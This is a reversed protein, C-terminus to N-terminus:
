GSTGQPTWSVIRRGRVVNWTAVAAAAYVMCVYTAISLPKPMRVGRRMLWWGVLAAGYFATQAAMTLVYFRHVPILLLNSLFILVLPIFLLRRLLKHTFLQVAYFGFRFPNLLERRYLVGSLGRTMVRVKRAFERKQTPAVAEFAVADPEFLLRFGQAIVSTSVAFDDTVGAPVGQFLSRRIAYISGTASITNGAQSEWLKLQRDFDWYASEGANDTARDKKTYRQNGAVGGIQDDAFHRVLKRIADPRYMSSADSMVLIDGSAEAIAANLAAAKGQRPLDIVRVNPGALARALEVTRDSSGDSAVIAELQGAPYDLESINRMKDAIVEGENHAAVILSVTPTIDAPRHPKPFLAGRVAILLPFGAYAYGILAASIWFVFQAILTM